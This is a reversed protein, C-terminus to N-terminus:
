CVSRRFRLFINQLGIKMGSYNSRGCEGRINCFQMLLSTSQLFASSQFIPRYLTPRLRARAARRVYDNRLPSPTAPTARQRALPRRARPFASRPRFRRCDIGMRLGAQRKFM